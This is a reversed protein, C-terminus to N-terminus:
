CPRRLMNPSMMIILFCIILIIHPYGEFNEWDDLFIGEDELLVSIKSEVDNDIFSEAM